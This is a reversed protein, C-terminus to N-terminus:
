LGLKLAMDHMFEIDELSLPMQETEWHGYKCSYKIHEDSQPILVNSDKYVFRECIADVTRSEVDFIMRYYTDETGKEYIVLGCGKTKFKWEM